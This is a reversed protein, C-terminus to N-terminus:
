IYVDRKKRQAQRKAVSAATQPIDCNKSKRGKRSRQAEDTATLDCRGHRHKTFCKMQWGRWKRWMKAARGVVTSFKATKLHRVKSYNNLHTYLETSSERMYSDDISTPNLNCWVVSALSPFKTLIALRHPNKPFWYCFLSNPSANSCWNFSQSRHVITAATQPWTWVCCLESM